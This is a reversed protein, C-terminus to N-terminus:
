ATCNCLFTQCKFHIDFFNFEEKLTILCELTNKPMTCCLTIAKFTHYFYKGTACLLGVYICIPKSHNKVLTRHLVLITIKRKQIYLKCSWSTGKLFWGKDRGKEAALTYYESTKFVWPALHKLTRPIREPQKLTQGSVANPHNARLPFPSILFPLLPFFYLLAM